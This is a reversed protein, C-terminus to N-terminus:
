RRVYYGHVWVRHHHHHRWAYHGPVWVYQTPGVYYAPGHVYYPRDGVSVVVAAKASSVIASTCLLVAGLISITRKM